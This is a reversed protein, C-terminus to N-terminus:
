RPGILTGPITQGNANVAVASTLKFAHDMYWILLSGSTSQWVIDQTDFIGSPGKGYDGIAVPHWAQMYSPIDISATGIANMSHDPALYWVTLASSDYWLLDLAGDGNFDGAGVLPAGSAAASRTITGIKQAGNMLWVVLQDTTPDLWLLDAKGDGNFDGTSSLIWDAPPPGASVVTNGITLSSPLFIHKVTEDVYDGDFDDRGLIQTFMQSVDTTASAYRKERQMNWAQGNHDDSTNIFLLDAHTGVRNRDSRVHDHRTNVAITVAGATVLPTGTGLGIGFQFAARMNGQVLISPSTDDLDPCTGDNLGALLSTSAVTVKFHSSRDSRYRLVSGADMFKLYRNSLKYVADSAATGALDPDLYHFLSIHKPGESPSGPFRVQMTSYIAGSPGEDDIVRTTETAAFVDGNVVIATWKATLVGNAYTESDPPPFAACTGAFSYWWGSASLDSTLPNAETGFLAARAGGSWHTSPYSLSVPGDAITGGVALLRPATCALLCAIGTWTLRTKSM